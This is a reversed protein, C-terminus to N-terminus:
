LKNVLRTVTQTPQAGVSLWHNFREKNVVVTSPKTTTDYHGLIELFRGDRKYKEEAAVIRYKAQNRAGVRALRIKVM